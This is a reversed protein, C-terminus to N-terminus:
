QTGCTPLQRCRRAFTAAAPPRWWLWRPAAAPHIATARTLAAREASLCQWNCHLAAPVQAGGHLAAVRLLLSSLSSALQSVGLESGLRDGQGAATRPQDQQLDGPVAKAQPQSSHGPLTRWTSGRCLVAVQM